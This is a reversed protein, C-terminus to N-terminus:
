HSIFNPNSLLRNYEYKQCKQDSILTWQMKGWIHLYGLLFGFVPPVIISQSMVIFWIVFFWPVYKSKMPCCCFMTEREPEINHFIVIQVMIIPWLGSFPFMSMLEFYSSFFPMLSGLFIAGCFLVNIIFNNAMFWVFSRVTGLQRERYKGFRWFMLVGILLQIFSLSIFPSTFLTWFYFSHILNYPILTLFYVPVIFSVLYFVLQCYMVFRTFYGTM